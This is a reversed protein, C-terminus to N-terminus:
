NRALTTFVNVLHADRRVCGGILQAIIYGPVQAWAFDGNMALALTVAPNLHAGSIQGVAYVGLTVGLGM